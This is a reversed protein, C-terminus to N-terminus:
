LIIDDTEEEEEKWEKGRGGRKYNGRLKYINQEYTQTTSDNM